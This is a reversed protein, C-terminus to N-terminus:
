AVWRENRRIKQVTTHSVGHDAAIARSSRPDARIAAVQEATLPSRAEIATPYGRNRRRDAANDHYTGWALNALSNDAPDDNLHRGLHGPPRPGVFALLLAHHLRLKRHRILFHKHGSDAVYPKLQKGSPGYVDGRETVYVDPWGPVARADEPRLM